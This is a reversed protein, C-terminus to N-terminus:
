EGLTVIHELTSIDFKQNGTAENLKAIAGDFSDSEVRINKNNLTVHIIHKTNSM